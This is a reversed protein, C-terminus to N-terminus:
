FRLNTGLVNPMQQTNNRVNGQGSGTRVQKYSTKKVYHKGKKVYTVIKRKTARPVSSRPSTGVMANSVNSIGSIFSGFGSSSKGSYRAAIRRREASARQQEGYKATEAIQKKREEKAAVNRIEREEKYETVKEGVKEKIKTAADHIWGQKKPNYPKCDILNGFGDGDSDRMVNQLKGKGVIKNFVDQNM